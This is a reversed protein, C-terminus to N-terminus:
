IIQYDEKIVVQNKGLNKADYLGIDARNFLNKAEDKREKNWYSVGCSVTIPPNTKNQVAEVLRKAIQAGAGLPVGPLYIALEEGGWRAGIDTTRINELILNAVQVLVDDGVQHGFTDNVEKFNDIDLLIFTGEKDNTMSTKIQNNLYSKVFLQTLQDTIVMKELKERLISNSIALTSHHILSQFLKFMDFTFFYPKEHLVISFGKLSNGEIMPVAMISLFSLPIDRMKGSLDSIFISDRQKKLSDFVFQIYLKGHSTEFVASSGELISSTNDENIFIFAVTEAHFSKSIQAKLFKTTENLSSSGNLVHSTENILRLDEILSRSQQYLKANEIANGATNALLRIFEIENPEFSFSAYTIVELVGYVGQKGHLPSYLRTLKTDCTTDIQISGNIFAQMARDDMSDYQLPKVPLDQNYHNDNSIMLSYKFNPFVRKLTYIIESLVNEVEMSSHFKETVRFLEKYLSENNMGM